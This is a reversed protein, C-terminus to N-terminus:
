HAAFEERILNPAPEHRDPHQILSSTQDPVILRTVGGFFKHARVQAGTWDATTRRPTACAFTYNSAGLTAVFIQARAIEGTLPCTIPVTSGDYDVFLREGGVHIQRMSRLPTKAFARYKVCFNTYKYALANDRAYEDWLPM